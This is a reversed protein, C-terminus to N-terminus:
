RFVRSFCFNFKERIECSFSSNTEFIKQIITHKILGMGVFEKDINRKAYKVNSIVLDIM